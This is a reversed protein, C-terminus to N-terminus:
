KEGPAQLQLQRFGGSSIRDYFTQKGDWIYALFAQMPTVKGVKIKACTIAVWEYEIKWATREAQPLLKAMTGKQPKRPMLQAVYGDVVPEIRYMVPRGDDMSIKFTLAKIKGDSSYTNLIDSAGIDVLLDHMLSVSRNVPVGSTYNRINM